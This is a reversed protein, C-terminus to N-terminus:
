TCSREAFHHSSDLRRASPVGVEGACKYRHGSDVIHYRIYLYPQQLTTPHGGM